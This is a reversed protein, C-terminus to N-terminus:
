KPAFVRSFSDFYEAGLSVRGNMAVVQLAGTTALAHFMEAAARPSLELTPPPTGPQTHKGMEAFQQLRERDTFAAATSTADWASSWVKPRSNDAADALVYWSPLKFAWAVLEELHDKQGTASFRDHLLSAVDEKFKVAADALTIGHTQAFMPVLNTLPAFYGAPGDNFLIGFVGAHGLHLVLPIAHEAPMALVGVADTGPTYLKNRHGFANARLGDTFAMVFPKDQVVGCFPKFQPSNIEARQVFHWKELRMTADWLRDMAHADANTAAANRLADFDVSPSASTAADNVVSNNTGAPQKKGWNFIGM